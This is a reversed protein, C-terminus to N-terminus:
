GGLLPIGSLWPHLWLLLLYLLAAGFLLHMHQSRSAIETKHWPGDRRNIALMALASWLLLGGFLILSRLEGNSLLHAVSWLLVGFLQPHRTFRSPGPIISDTFLLLSVAMLSLTAMKSWAFSGYLVTAATLKWGYIIAGLAAFILLAFFGRYALPGLTAICRQRAKPALAPFLHAMTWLLLGSILWLM